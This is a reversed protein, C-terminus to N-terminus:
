LKCKKRTKNIKHNRRKMTKSKHTTKRKIPKNNNKNRRTKRGGKQKLISELEILQRNITKIEQEKEGLEVQKEAIYSNDPNEMSQSNKIETSIEMKEDEMDNITKKVEKIKKATKNFSQKILNDESADLDIFWKKNAIGKMITKLKDFRNPCNLVGAYSNKIQEGLINGLKGVLPKKNWEEETIMKSQFLTLDVYIDVDVIKNKNDEQPRIKTDFFLGSPRKQINPSHSISYTTTNNPKILKNLDKVNSVPQYKALIFDLNFKTNKRLRELTNESIVNNFNNLKVGDNLLKNIDVDYHEKEVYKFKLLKDTTVNPITNTINEYKEQYENLEAPDIYTEFPEFRISYIYKKRDYYNRKNLPDERIGTVKALLNHNPHSPYNYKVIDGEKLETYKDVQAYKDAESLLEVNSIKLPFYRSGSYNTKYFWKLNYKTKSTRKSLVNDYKKKIKKMANIDEVDSSQLVTYVTNNKVGQINKNQDRSLNSLTNLGKNKTLIVITRTDYVEDLKRIYKAEIENITEGDDFEISFKQIGDNGTITAKYWYDIPNNKDSHLFTEKVYDDYLIVNQDNSNTLAIQKSELNGEVDYFNSEADQEDTNYVLVRKVNDSVLKSFRTQNLYEYSIPDTTDIFLRKEFEHDIANSDHIRDTEQKKVSTEIIGITRENNRETNILTIVNDKKLVNSASM